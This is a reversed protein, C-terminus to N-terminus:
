STPLKYDTDTTGKFKIKGLTMNQSGIYTFTLTNEPPISRGNYKVSSTPLYVGFVNM